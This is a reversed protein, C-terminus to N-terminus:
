PIPKEMAVYVTGAPFYHLGVAKGLEDKFLLQYYDTRDRLEYSTVYSWMSPHAILVTKLYPRSFTGRGVVSYSNKM